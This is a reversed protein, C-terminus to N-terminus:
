PPRDASRDSTPLQPASLMGTAIWTESGSANKRGMSRNLSRNSSNFLWGSQDNWPLSERAVGLKSSARVPHERPMRLRLEDHQVHAIEGLVERVDASDISRYGFM